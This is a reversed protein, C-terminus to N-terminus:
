PSVTRMVSSWGCRWGDTSKSHLGVVNQHLSGHNKTRVYVTGRIRHPCKYARRSEIARAGAGLMHQM